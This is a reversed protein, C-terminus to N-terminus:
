TNKELKKIISNAIIQQTKKSPHYDKPPVIFNDYDESIQLSDSRNAEFMNEYSDYLKNKYELYILKDKFYENNIFYQPIDNTWIWVYPKIGNNEFHQLFKQIRQVYEKILSDNFDDITIKNKELYNLVEKNNVIDWYQKIENTVPCLFNTRPWQTVQYIIHSFDNYDYAPVASMNHYTLDATPTDFVENWYDHIRDIGGGNFWQCVEFTNFHNAVLRPFRVTKM